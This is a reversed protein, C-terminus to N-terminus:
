YIHNICTRAKVESIESAPLCSAESRLNPLKNNVSCYKLFNHLVVQEKATLANAM